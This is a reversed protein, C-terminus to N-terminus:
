ESEETTRKKGRKQRAGVEKKGYRQLTRLTLQKGTKQQLPPLLASYHVPKHARNARLIPARVHQEVERSTLMRPRGAGKRHQLSQPTGDWRQHWNEVTRRGGTVGHRAALTAFSHTTSRPSYELLISHKQEATLQKM